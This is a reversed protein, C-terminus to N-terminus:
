VACLWGFNRPRNSPGGPETDGPEPTEDIAQLIRDELEPPPACSDFRGVLALVARVRAVITDFAGATAPDARERRQEIVARELETVADMAYLYASELLDEAPEEDTTM